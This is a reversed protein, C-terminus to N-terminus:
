LKEKYEEVSEKRIRWMGGIKKGDLEGKKIYRRITEQSKNIIKSVEETSIYNQYEEVSSRNIKWIGKEKYGDLKNDKLYNHVTYLPLDLIKSVEKASLYKRKKSKNSLKIIKNSPEINKNKRLNNKLNTKLFDSSDSNLNEILDVGVRELKKHDLEKVNIYEIRKFRPKYLALNKIPWPEGVMAALIYYGVIQNADKYSYGPNKTTKIDVLINDIILDADAGGVLESARSFNPNLFISNEKIFFEKNTNLSNWLNFLDNYIYQPPKKLLLSLDNRYLELARNGGRFISELNGLFWVSNIIDKKDIDRGKIYDSWKNITKLYKIIIKEGIKNKSSDLLLNYKEIEKNFKDKDLNGKENLIDNIMPPSGFIESEFESIKLLGSEAVGPLDDKLKLNNWLGVQARLLYDFATGVNGSENPSIKNPPAVKIKNNEFPRQSSLTKFKSKKPKISKFLKRFDKNNILSTLSILVV